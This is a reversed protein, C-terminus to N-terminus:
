RNGHNIPLGLGECANVFGKMVPHRVGEPPLEGGDSRQLVGHVVKLRTFYDAGDMCGVLADGDIVRQRPNVDVAEDVRLTKFLLNRLCIQLLAVSNIWGMPVARMAVHTM